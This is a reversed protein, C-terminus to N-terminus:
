DEDGWISGDTGDNFEEDDEDDEDWDFDEDDEFDEDEINNALIGDEELFEEVIEEPVLPAGCGPCDEGQFDNDIPHNCEICRKM